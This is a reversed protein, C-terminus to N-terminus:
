SGRHVPTPCPHIEQSASWSIRVVKIINIIFTIIVIVTIIIIIVTITFVSTIIFFCITTARRSLRRMMKSFM